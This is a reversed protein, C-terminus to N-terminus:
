KRPQKFFYVFNRLSDEFESIQIYQEEKQVQIINRAADHNLMTHMTVLNTHRGRECLTRCLLKIYPSGDDSRHAVFGPLTAYGFFFDAGFKPIELEKAEHGSHDVYRDDTKLPDKKVIVRRESGRCAQIFFMKPKGKLPQYNVLPEAIEKLPVHHRNDNSKIKGEAGHSLICCVFSDHVSKPKTMLVSTPYQKDNSKEFVSTIAKMKQDDCNRWEIVEYGLFKFTTTLNDRDTDTGVRHHDPSHEFTNNIILAVGHREHGNMAYIERPPTAHRVKVTGISLKIDAEQNYGHDYKSTYKNVLCCFLILSMMTFSPMSIM